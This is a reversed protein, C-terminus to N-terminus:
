GNGLNEIAPEHKIRLLFDREFREQRYGGFAFPFKDQLEKVRNRAKERAQHWKREEDFTKKRFEEVFIGKTSLGEKRLNQRLLCMETEIDM